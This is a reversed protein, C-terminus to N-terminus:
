RKARTRERLEDALEAISTTLSPGSNVGEMVLESLRREAVNQPGLADADRPMLFKPVVPTTVQTM